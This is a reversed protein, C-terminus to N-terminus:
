TKFREWQDFLLRGELFCKQKSWKFLSNIVIVCSTRLTM